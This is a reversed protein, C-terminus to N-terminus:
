AQRGQGSRNLERGVGRGPRRKGRRDLWSGANKRGSEEHRARAPAHRPRSSAPSFRARNFLKQARRSLSKSTACGQRVIPVRDLLLVAHNPRPASTPSTTAIALWFPPTPLVVVAILKATAKALRLNRTRRISRSGCPLAVEPRSELRSAPRAPGARVM